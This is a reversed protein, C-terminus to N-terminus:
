DHSRVAEAGSVIDLLESTVEEQRLAKEQRSLIKLKDEANQDAGEMITLRAGNESAFGEMVAHMLEAYVYELTLKALLAEPALYHFPARASARSRLLEPDLPALQRDHVDFRGGGGYEAFVVRVGSYGAIKDMLSLCLSSVSKAHTAMAFCWAVPISREEALLRGKRGIVSLASGDSCLKAAHDLIQSSYAGSLGHEACIAIVVSDHASVVPAKQSDARDGILMVADAIANEVQETYQRISPLAAQAEQMHAAAIARTARAIERFESLSSVRATLQARREV